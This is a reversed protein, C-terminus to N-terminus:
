APLLIYPNSINHQGFRKLLSVEDHPDIEELKLIEQIAPQKLGPIRHVFFPWLENRQYRRHKNPFDILASRTADNKYEDTYEFYWIGDEVWLTGINVNKFSLSFAAKQTSTVQTDENGQPKWLRTIKEFFSM